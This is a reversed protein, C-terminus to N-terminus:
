RNALNFMSTGQIKRFALSAAELASKRLELQTTAEYYDLDELRSLQDRYSLRRMDGNDDLAEIENLRAGVSARVTLVNDYAIDMRQITSNLMNRFETAGTASGEQPSKLAAIIADLTKFMNLEDSAEKTSRVSFTDGAEPKGSLSVQVGHPLQILNDQGPTITETVPAGVPNDQADYVTIEVETDSTFALAYRYDPNMAAADFVAAKGIISSGTNNSPQGFDSGAATLFKTVGPTARAFIDSGVDSSPMRRTQDLQINRQADDGIYNGTVEDFAPTSGLSGSFLHQGNGDTANALELLNGRAQELVGALSLRDADALSGNGAEVLRTKIDQVLTTVSNLTEEATGLKSTAIARNEAFRNNMSHSQGINIAEAAALPDDSPNVMRQGTGIQQFLHLLDSQQANISNLGTQFYLASSIRM